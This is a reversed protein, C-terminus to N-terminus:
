EEIVAIWEVTTVTPSNSACQYIRMTFGSTTVTGGVVSGFFFQGTGNCYISPVSPLTQSFPVNVM